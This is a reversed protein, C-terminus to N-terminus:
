AGAEGLEERNDEPGLIEEIVEEMLSDGWQKGIQMNKLTIDPTKSMVSSGAPTQYFQALAVAEEETYQEDLNTRRLAMLEPLRDEIKKKFLAVGNVIRKKQSPAAGDMAAAMIMNIMAEFVPMVQDAESNIKVLYDVAETKNM